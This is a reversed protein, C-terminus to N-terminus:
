LRGRIATVRAAAAAVLGEDEAAVLGEDEAAMLGEDEAAVLGEDEAALVLLVARAEAARLSAIRVAIRASTM